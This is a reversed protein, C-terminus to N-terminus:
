IWAGRYEARGNQVKGLGRCGRDYVRRVPYCQSGAIRHAAMRYAAVMEGVSQSNSPIFRRATGHYLTAPPAARTLEVDVPISHGQNARVLTHDDNFSTPYM